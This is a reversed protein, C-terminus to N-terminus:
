MASRGKRAVWFTVADRELDTTEVFGAQRLTGLVQERTVARRAPGYFSLVLTGEPKLVRRVEKLGTVPDPWLHFSNMAYAKDFFADRYPIREVTGSLLSVTGAGIARANRAKAAKLMVESPDIGVVLGVGLLRREVCEIGIGPGFGIELVTEGQRVELLEVVREAIERQRRGAMIKGGMRGLLGTPLGFTRWLVREVFGM